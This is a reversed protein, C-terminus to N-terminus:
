VRKRLVIQDQECLGCPARSREFGREVALEGLDARLSDDMPLTLHLAVCTECIPAPSLREVLRRITEFMASM